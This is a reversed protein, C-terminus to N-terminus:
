KKKPVVVFVMVPHLVFAGVGTLLVLVLPNMSRTETSLRLHMTVVDSERLLTELDVYRIGLLSAREDSPNVTWAHVKMGIGQAVRVMRSGVAGTGIVGM